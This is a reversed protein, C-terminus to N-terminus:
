HTLRSLTEIESEIEAIRKQAFSLQEAMAKQFSVTDIFKSRFVISDFEEGPKMEYVTTRLSGSLETMWTTRKSQSIEQFQALIYKSKKMLISAIEFTRQIGNQRLAISKSALEPSLMKARIPAEQLLFKLDRLHTELEDMSMNKSYPGDQVSGLGQFSSLTPEGNKMKINEFAHDLEHRFTDSIALADQAMAYPTMILQFSKSDFGGMMNPQSLFLFPDILIALDKLEGHAGAAVVMESFHDSELSAELIKYSSLQIETGLEPFVKLLFDSTKRQKEYKVNAISLYEETKSEIKQMWNNFEVVDVKGLKKQRMLVDSFDLTMNNLDRLVHVIQHAFESKAAYLNRCSGPAAWSNSMWAFSVLVITAVTRFQLHFRM